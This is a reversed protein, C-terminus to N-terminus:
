LVKIKNIIKDAEYQLDTLTITRENGMVGVLLSGAINGFFTAIEIPIDSM